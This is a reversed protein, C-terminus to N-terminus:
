IGLPNQKAEGTRRPLKVKPRGTKKFVLIERHGLGRPLEFTERSVFSLACIHAARRAANLEDDAINAKELVCYGGFTLLPSAYEVLVNSQAVARAFVANYHEEERALDEARIHRAKVNSLGLLEVFENVASVKKGVSDILTGQAATMIGLPIGPFGAGTGIDVYRSEPTLVSMRSALPLLSDVIHLTVADHPDTIRTLNMVKNKEIVLLLHHILLTAQRPTCSIDYDSLESLLQKELVQSLDNDM